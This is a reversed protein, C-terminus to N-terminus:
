SQWQLMFVAMLLINIILMPKKGIFSLKRFVLMPHSKDWIGYNTLGQGVRRSSVFWITLDDRDGKLIELLFM